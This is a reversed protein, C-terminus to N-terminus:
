NNHMAHDFWAFLAPAFAFLGCGLIAPIILLENGPACDTVMNYAFVGTIAIGAVIALAM